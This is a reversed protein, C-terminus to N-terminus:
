IRPIKMIKRTPPTEILIRILSAPNKDNEDTTNKTVVMM